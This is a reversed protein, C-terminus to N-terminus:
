SSKLPSLQSWPPGCQQATRDTERRATQSGLADDQVRVCGAFVGEVDSAAQVLRHHLDGEREGAGDDLFEMVLDVLQDAAHALGEAVNILQLQLGLGGVQLGDEVLVVCGM